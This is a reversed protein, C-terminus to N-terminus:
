RAGCSARVVLEAPLVVSQAPRGAILELLTRVLIDSARALNQRVTTLAPSYLGALTIDDFGVVAVDEPVRLQRERLAQIVRMAIVDSTTFVADLRPRRDLFVRAASLAGQGDFPLAVELGPAPALGYEALAQVYGAHRPAVEPLHKNGFFAINRRGLRLLHRVAQAAGDFNDSGVSVYSQGAMEAGWVVLPAYDQVIENIAEHQTSQGILLVGDARIGRILGALGQEDKGSFKRLLLDYGYGGLTDALHGLMELFFPDSISQATDHLLPVVVAITGSQQLRLNRARKDITYGCEEALRQIRARTPEGVLPSNSLARSVTSESVGALEALDSM